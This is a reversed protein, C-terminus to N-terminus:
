ALQERKHEIIMRRILGAIALIGIITFPLLSWFLIDIM